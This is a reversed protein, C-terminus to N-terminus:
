REQELEDGVGGLRKIRELRGAEDRKLWPDDHLREWAQAFYRRAEAERGLMLLCEGIEEHTYGLSMGDQLGPHDLLERQIALAEDVRDLHRYMKAISWRCIGIVTENGGALVIPLQAEFMRLADDYRGLDFYTWGLNNHLTGAWRAAREDKASVAMALAKENWAISDDGKTVIGLMHAADVAYYELGADQATQLVQEFLAVSEAPKGSSNIVRGRELLVRVRARHMDPGLMAEAGDLTAHAEDFKQQLGQTRAIQSQLEVLYAVEGSDRAGPLLNRFASETGAPDSYNWLKDFDPLAATDDQASKADGGM